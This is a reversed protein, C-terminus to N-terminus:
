AKRDRIDRSVELILRRGAETVTRMRSEVAIPTGGKSVHVLEGQWAGDRGLVRLFEDVGRPFVTGLLAHPVLGLAEERSFGYLASATPNWYEIGDDLSWAVVAETSLDLLAAQRAIAAVLKSRARQADVRAFLERASFPKTLYDDAGAQLGEVSAEEGARASLMIVPITRTRENKRLERILGFGDLVPMMVDALVVAPPRAIAAALAAAGDEVAEVSFRPGLLRTLYERLDANDDAVLIRDQTVPESPAPAGGAFSTRRDAASGPLWRLAEEVFPTAGASTIRRAAVIREKALHASGRPITISFTTGRGVQSHVTIAGGHLKVLESVLALGIGSGEHTRARTGEVRHFREFVRPLEREPIGGGTDTVELTVAGDIARLAVRISGEFTFKFANSLLNLVIKEWMDRDVFVPEGLSPCDVVLALGARETAARFASSLDRTLAPLDVAEYTAQLRHAELRSFDLLANVLRHLRLENRHILELQARQAASLPGQAESLLDETPGLMLTLPTRFEHSVNSFFATKARDIETLAEARKREAQYARANRIATVVQAAALEFFSSYAEDLTRHPSLGVVLVGYALAQDPSALPLAMAGRPSESWHGSPLGAFRIDLDGVLHMHRESVVQRLPWVARGVPDNVDVLVPAAPHIGEGFGCRSALSAWRGSEDLLYFLAFPVDHRNESLTAAAYQCAQEPSQSVAARAGLERLTRLQRDGYVQATTE